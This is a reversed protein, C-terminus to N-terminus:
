RLASAQLSAACFRPLLRFPRGRSRLTVVKAEGYMALLPHRVVARFEVREGAPWSDVHARFAGPATMKQMPTRQWQGGRENTDLGQLSRYEFCVEVGAADGLSPSDGRDPGAGSDTRPVRQRHPRTPAHIRAERQHDEGRGSQAM